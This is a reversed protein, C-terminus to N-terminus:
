EGESDLFLLEQAETVLEMLVGDPNPHDRGSMAVGMCVGQVKGLFNRIEQPIGSSVAAPATGLVARAKSLEVGIEGEFVEEVEGDCAEVLDALAKWEPSSKLIGSYWKEFHDTGDVKEQEPVINNLQCYALVAMEKVSIVSTNQIGNDM